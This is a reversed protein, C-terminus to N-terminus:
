NPKKKGSFLNHVDIENPTYEKTTTITTETKSAAAAAGTHSLMLFGSPLGPQRGELRVVTNNSM